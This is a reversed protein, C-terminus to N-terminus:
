KLVRDAEKCLQETNKLKWHCTDLEELLQKM